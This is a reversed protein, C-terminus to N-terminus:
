VCCCGGIAGVEEDEHLRWQMCLAGNTLACVATGRRRFSGLATRQIALQELQGQVRELQGQVSIQQQRIARVGDQDNEKQLAEKEKQLAEKEKQLAEEPRL